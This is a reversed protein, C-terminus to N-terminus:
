APLTREPTTDGELAKALRARARFLRSMVTGQPVGLATAAEAYSLGAFDVAAIVDRLPVPLSAVAGYVERALAAALPDGDPRVQPLDSLHDDGGPPPTRRETRRHDHLVNRLTRALYPFENGTRLRRPRALVRLFTEQTIDEALHRSGCLAYALRNLRPLHAAAAHPDLVSM